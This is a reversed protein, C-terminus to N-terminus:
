RQDGAVLLPRSLVASLEQEGPRTALAMLQCGDTPAAGLHHMPSRGPAQGPVDGHGRSPPRPRRSRRRRRAVGISATVKVDADELVFRESLALEITEAIDKVCSPEALDECLVVFEDSALRAVTVDGQLRGTLREALAILLQDGVHHGYAGNVVKFQDVDVSLVAVSQGTRRSLEIGQDLRQLLLTRNPLGTLSDHLSRHQARESVARAADRAQANLLYASLSMRLRGARRCRPRTWRGRRLGTCMSHASSSTVMTSRFPSCRRSARPSHRSAFQPFRRDNRLSPVSVARGTEFADICPGEGLGSQLREFRMAADDSAAIHRPKAGPGILTLGAGTVPLVEVVRVVFQDLIVQIPFDTVVTHAFESLVSSLGEDTDM